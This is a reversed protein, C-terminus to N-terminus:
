TKDVSYPLGCHPCSIDSARQGYRIAGLWLELNDPRNDHRIGNIHHVSENKILPRGLKQEMIVRHEAVRKSKYFVQIYGHKDTYRAPVRSTSGKRVMASYHEDCYKFLYAKSRNGHKILKKPKSCKSSWECIKIM